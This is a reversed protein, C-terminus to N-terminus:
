SNCKHRLVVYHHPSIWPQVACNHVIELGAADADAAFTAMSIPVRDAPSYGKLTNRVKRYVASLAASNFFSVIIPGHSIRALEKLARVRTAPETFHHFLRNCIVGDFTSDEFTTAMIDQSCITVRKSDYEPPLGNQLKELMVPSVDSAHVKFGHDLLLRSVRGAGAPLDLVAGGETFFRFLNCILKKERRDRSINRYRDPYKQTWHHDNSFKDVAQQHSDTPTIM